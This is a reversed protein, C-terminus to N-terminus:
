GSSKSGSGDGQPGQDLGLAELLDELGGSEKLWQVTPRVQKSLWVLKTLRDSRRRFGVLREPPGELGFIPELGHHSVWYHLLSRVLGPRDASYRLQGAVSAAPAGKLELEYRWCREYYEAGEPDGAAECERQKNYIRLYFDSSRSGLYCTSGGDSNRVLSVAAARPHELAFAKAEDFHRMAVGDDLVSTRVTVALDLRTFLAGYNWVADFHDTALQGSLQLLGSDDREGWRVRGVRTGSYGMLRFPQDRNGADREESQWALAMVRLWDRPKQKHVTATLWDLQAELVYTSYDV